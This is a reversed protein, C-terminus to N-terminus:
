RDDCLHAQCLVEAQAADCLIGTAHLLDTCKWHCLLRTGSTVCGEEALWGRQCMNVVIRCTSAEHVQCGRRGGRGTLVYIQGLHGSTLTMMFGQKKAPQEKLLLTVHPTYTTSCSTGLWHPYSSVSPSLCLM